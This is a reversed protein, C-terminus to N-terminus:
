LISERNFTRVAANVLRSLISRPPSAVVCKGTLGLPLGDVNRFRSSFVYQAELPVDRQTESKAETAVDGGIRSSFPSNELNRVSFAKVDDVTARFTRGTGIPFWIEVEQGKSVKHIDDQPVLTKVICYDPSKLEGVVVGEGPQFGNQLRYDLRNVVGDFPAVIGGMATNLEDQLVTTEHENQQIEVLKEPAHAREKEDLVMTQVEQHLIRREIEKNALSLRLRTTDLQFLVTGADVRDGQRVFVERVSTQLPVTLKQVKESDLYCPFISRSSIPIILPVVVAGVILLFVLVGGFRPKMESRKEYLGKIGRLVPRVVFLTFAMLALLMGLFKDFRYYVGTVIGTYLFFRYVFSSIGYLGFLVTERSDQATNPVLSIGLVRNMFLYKIYGAAKQALNPMRLYDILIFYGDFKLLPNGNFLVTSIFSVAMLYFALSNVMGPQTFHWISAAIVALAGEAIIGAASIAMRQRRNALQWADTTNCYLCPFFILFAIGMQPVHLGFSKATYAHAFEHFLKSLAITIWLYLLNKWNFFFLYEGQIRDIGTLVFYLAAPALLLFLSATLKNCLVKFIWITSELFRDPNWIPIYLFYVSSFRRGRKMEKIQDKRQRQFQASSFRTGLLLGMQAAKSVLMRAEEPFYYRGEWKFREVAEDLTRTGDLMKLFAFEDPSLRFYKESVPDKLIISKKGRPGEYESVILDPRLKPAPEM